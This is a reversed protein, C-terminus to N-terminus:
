DYSVEKQSNIIVNELNPTKNSDTIFPTTLRCFAFVGENKRKKM